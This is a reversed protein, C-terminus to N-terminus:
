GSTLWVCNLCVAVAIAATLTLFLMSFLLDSIDALVPRRRTRYLIRRSRNVFVYVGCISAVFFVLLFPLQFILIPHYFHAADEPSIEALGAAAILVRM